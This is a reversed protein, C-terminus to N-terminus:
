IQNPTDVRKTERHNSKVNTLFGITVGLGHVAHCPKDTVTRIRLHILFLAHCIQRLDQAALAREYRFVHRAIVFHARHKITELGNSLNPRFKETRVDNRHAHLRRVHQKDLDKLALERARASGSKPHNWQKFGDTGEVARGVDQAHQPRVFPVACVQLLSEVVHLFNHDPVTVGSFITAARSRSPLQKFRLFTHSVHGQFFIDCQAIEVAATSGDSASAPRLM